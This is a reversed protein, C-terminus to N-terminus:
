MKVFPNIFPIFNRSIGFISYAILIAVIVRYDTLFRNIKKAFQLNFLFDLNFLVVILALYWILCFVFPHYEFSRAFNGSVFNYVCRTGGCGPCLIGNKYFTCKAIETKIMIYALPRICFGIALMALDAILVFLRKNKIRMM